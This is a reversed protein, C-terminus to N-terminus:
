YYYYFFAFGNSQIHTSNIQSVYRLLDFNSSSLNGNIKINKDNQQDNTAFQILLYENKSEAFIKQKIINIICEKSLEFVTRDSKHCKQAM